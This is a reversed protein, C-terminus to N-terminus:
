SRHTHQKHHILYGLKYVDFFWLTAFGSVIFFKLVPQALRFTFNFFPLWSSKELKSYAKMLSIDNVFGADYGTIEWAKLLNRISEETKQLFLRNTDIKEIEVPNDIHSIPIKHTKLDFGFLTDEHGYGSLSENFKVKLLLERSILFNSTKFSKYPNQYRQSAPLTERKVGFKWRLAYNRGPFSEPYKHGGTVVYVKTNKILPIYSQIFGPHTVRVDGDLYLLYPHQTYKPFLNRIKARGVNKPLVVYQAHAKCEERNQETYKEDSCDDLILIDVTETCAQIQESLVKVLPFVYHNYVPICISLM